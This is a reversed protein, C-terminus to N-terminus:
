CDLEDSAITARSPRQKKLRIAAGVMGECNVFNGIPLQSSVNPDLSGLIEILDAHTIADNASVTLAIAGAAKASAGSTGGYRRTYETKSASGCTVDLDPEGPAAARVRTGYNRFLARANVLDDYGTAAVVISGTDPIAQGDEGIDASVNGNGAPICVFVDAAVARMVAGQVAISTEICYRMGTQIEVNIVKRMGSSKSVVWDIGTAWPNVLDPPQQPGDDGVVGAQVLWLTCEPAFGAIGAGNSGAGIMGAAGTGHTLNGMSVDDSGDLVNHLGDAAYRGALDEHELYFGWDVDAVVVGKGLTQEWASLADCRYLYWQTPPNEHKQDDPGIYPDAPLASAPIFMPRRAAARIGPRTRLQHAVEDSSRNVPVRVAVFRDRRPQLDDLLETAGRFAFAARVDDDDASGTLFGLDGNNVAQIFAIIDERPVEPAFEIEVVKSDRLDVGAFSVM